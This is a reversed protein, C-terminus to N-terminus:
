AASDMLQEDIDDKFIETVANVFRLGTEYMWDIAEDWNERDETNIKMRTYPHGTETGQNYEGVLEAFKASHPALRRQVESPACGRPGRIFVGIENKAHYISVYLGIGSPTDLWSQPLGTVKVGLNKADPHRQLFQTWFDRRRPAFSSREPHPRLDILHEGSIETEDVESLRALLDEQRPQGFVLRYNALGKILDQFKQVERSYPILPIRREVRANGEEYIWYPVLDSQDGPSDESAQLFLQDWPDDQQDSESNKRLCELGYKEAVNKRVAHGKYRHVRGERQELDVPNAPLNWHMVAHCWTHFDLGEQGVSTSALVFPRFPSNFADRVTDARLLSNSNEDKIDAFRLAFRCRSNFHKIQFRGDEVSLEDMQVQAARMSLVSEIHVATEEVRKAASEYKLGLSEKLVHVYEDLVAQLNGKISYDLTIRWYPQGGRQLMLYNQPLKFLTRFGSAITSAASLLVPDAPALTENSRLLARLACNGPGGLALEVLVEALDDPKRGLEHAGDYAAVMLELHEIFRTSNEGDTKGIPWREPNACWDRLDTSRELMIPAAWYWSEDTRTSENGEPLQQVLERCLHLARSKLEAAPIPGEEYGLALKLPDIATALVPSAMLWALVPMGTLRDNSRAFTLAPNVKVHLESHKVETTNIMRREAEYSVLSAIADPVASWKSFVLAKTLHSKDEFVGAPKVYHLSPPMWLLQWMGEDITDAFLCRMRPNGPDVSNYKEFDSKKIQLESSHTLAKKLDASPAELSNELKRRFEYHRLFNVLYPTSKWYEILDPGDTEVAVMDSTMLHDLDSVTLKAESPKQKMMSNNDRTSSVRETRCMVRLLSRQLRVKPSVEVQVPCDGSTLSLLSKRHEVILSKVEQVSGGDNFLFELTSLFDEYHNNDEEGHMTYMKYPTASLLLIRVDKVSFMKKALLSAEDEAGLLQKFRQFEDMIVLDPTLAELCVGALCSRLNSILEYRRRNESWPIESDKRYRRFVEICAKLEEYLKSDSRVAKLFSASLDPDLGETEIWDINSRWRKRSKKCQLLNYLGCVSCTEQKSNESCLARLMLYIIVRENSTGGRSSSHDFTTKPTLSIFNVENERLTKVQMPLLTLRTAVAFDDQGTVNLRKINQMAISGNSCIYVINTQKKTKLHELTKAVVGRAVLTKGLGVEDAVLFRGSAVAGAKDKGYLKEFVYEVTERQFDKLGSLVDDVSNM